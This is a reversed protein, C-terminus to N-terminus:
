KEMKALIRQITLWTRSTINDKGFTRDLTSMFDVTKSETPNTVNCLANVSLDPCFKGDFSSTDSPDTKFFTVLLYSTRGHDLGAYPDKASLAELQQQSRVITLSTFGLQKPWQTQIMAELKAINQIDSEFVVNGSSLLPQANTFGLKEIAGALKQGHMNPNSPGIGRM